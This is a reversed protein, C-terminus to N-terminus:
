EDEPLFELLAGDMDALAARVAEADIQHFSRNGKKELTIYGAERLIKLHGSVTPQSVGLQVALDGVTLPLRHWRAIFALLMLRTPDSFAKFRGALETIRASSDEFLSETRLGYGIFHSQSFEFNFGGGAAFYLPTVLIRGKEQSTRIQGASVEFQTFHHPPLAELVDGSREFAERFVQVAEEVVARGERLWHPELRRWFRALLDRYAEAREPDRLQELRSRFAAHEHNPRKGAERAGKSEKAMDEFRLLLRAPLEPLDGLFREAEEDRAYGLEGSLVFLDYGCHKASRDDWFTLLERHLEPEESRLQDVWFLDSKKGRSSREAHTLLYYYAYTLELVPAPMAEVRESTPLPTSFSLISDSEM